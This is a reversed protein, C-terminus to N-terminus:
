RYEPTILLLLHLLSEELAILSEQIWGDENEEM